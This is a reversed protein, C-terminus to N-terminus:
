KGGEEFLFFIEQRAMRREKIAKMFTRRRKSRNLATMRRALHNSKKM